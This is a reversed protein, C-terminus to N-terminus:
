LGKFECLVMALAKRKHRQMLLHVQRKSFYVAISDSTHVTWGATWTRGTWLMSQLKGLPSNTFCGAKGNSPSGHAM